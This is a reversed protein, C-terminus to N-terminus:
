RCDVKEVRVPCLKRSSCACRVERRPQVKGDGNRDWWFLRCDSCGAQKGCSFKYCQNGNRLVVPRTSMKMKRAAQTTFMMQQTISKTVPSMATTRPPLTMSASLFSGREGVFSPEAKFYLLSDRIQAHGSTPMLAICVLLLNLAILIKRMIFLPQHNIKLRLPM